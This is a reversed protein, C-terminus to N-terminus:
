AEELLVFRWAHVEVGRLPEAEVYIRGSATIGPCVRLFVTETVELSFSSKPGPDTLGVKKSRSPNGNLVNIRFLKRLVSLIGDRRFGAPRVIPGAPKM